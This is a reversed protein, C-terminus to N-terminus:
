GNMMLLDLEALVYKRATYSVVGLATTSLSIFWVHGMVELFKTYHSLYMLFFFFFYIM